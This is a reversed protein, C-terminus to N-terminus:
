ELVYELVMTSTFKHRDSKQSRGEWRVLSGTHDFAVAVAVAGM